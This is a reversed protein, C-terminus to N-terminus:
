EADSWYYDSEEASDRELDADGEALAALAVAGSDPPLEVEELLM